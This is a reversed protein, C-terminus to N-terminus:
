VSLRVLVGEIIAAIVLLPLVVMFFVIILKKIMAVQMERVGRGFVFLFFFLIALILFMFFLFILAIKISMDVGQVGKLNIINGIYFILIFSVIFLISVIVGSIKKGRDKKNTRFFHILTEAGWRTGLGLAIFIAPLEFIGHPLIRWLSSVGQLAVVKSFVYGIVAGNSLTNILPIVAFFIGWILGFLASRVNNFFILFIIELTDKGEIQKVIKELMEDLFGLRDSFIFGLVGSLVFLFIIFFVYKKSDSIFNFAEFFKRKWGSKVEKKKAM